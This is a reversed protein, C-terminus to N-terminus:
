EYLWLVENFLLRNLIEYIVYCLVNEEDDVLMLEMKKM